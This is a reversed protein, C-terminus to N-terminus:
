APPPPPKGEVILGARVDADAHKTSPVVAPPRPTKYESVELRHGLAAPGAFMWIRFAAGDGDRNWPSQGIPEQRGLNTPRPKASPGRDHPSKGAAGAPLKTHHGIGPRRGRNNNMVKAPEPMVGTIDKSRVGPRERGLIV